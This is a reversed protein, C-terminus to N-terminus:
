CFNSSFSLYSSKSSILDDLEAQAIQKELLSSANSSIKDELGRIRTTEKSTFM